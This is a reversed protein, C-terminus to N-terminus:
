NTINANRAYELVLTREHRSVARERVGCASDVRIADGPRLTEVLTGESTEFHFDSKGLLGVFFRYDPSTSNQWGGDVDMGMFRLRSVSIDDAQGPMEGDLQQFLLVEPWLTMRRGNHELMNVRSNRQLESSKASSLAAAPLLITGLARAAYPNIFRPLHEVGTEGAWDSM